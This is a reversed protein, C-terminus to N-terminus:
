PNTCNTGNIAAESTLLNRDTDIPPSGLANILTTLEACSIGINGNFYIGFKTNTLTTLADIHGVGQGGLKNDSLELSTLSTLGSLPSVDSINNVSLDLTALSSMNSLTINSINNRRLKLITLSTMDSLDLKNISNSGLFLIKLNTMGSLPATNSINNSSLSLSTLNTLGLLPSVDSVSNAGLNLDTLSIVGSLPSVDSISNFSLSLTALNTLGSLPNVNSINNSYLFLVTLSTLKSLPSTDIISNDGLFLSTLSTLAEIGTLQAIGVNNCTLGTLDHVFTLTSAASTVCTTLNTDAFSLSDLRIDIPTASVETSASSSGVANDATIVYYYNTGNTLGSHNFPPTVGSIKTGGTGTGTTGSWYVSYSDAGPVIDWNLTIRQDGNTTQFGSSPAMPATTTVTITAINSDLSGDNAMFTFSDGNIDGNHTYTYAGTSANDLSLTGNSPSTVISFTLSDGNIDNVTLTGSMKEGPLLSVNANKAVPASNTPASDGSGGCSQLIFLLALASVIFFSNTIKHWKNRVVMM